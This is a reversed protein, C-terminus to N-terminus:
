ELWSYSFSDVDTPRSGILRLRLGGHTAVRGWRQISPKELKERLLTKGKERRRWESIRAREASQGFRKPPLATQM